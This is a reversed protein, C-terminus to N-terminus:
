GIMTLIAQQLPMQVGDLSSLDLLLKLLFCFRVAILAALHRVRKQENQASIMSKGHSVTGRAATPLKGHTSHRSRHLM